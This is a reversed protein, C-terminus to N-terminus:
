GHSPQGDSPQRGARWLVTVLSARGVDSRYLILGWSALRNLSRSKTTQSIGLKAAAQNSLKVVRSFKARNLLELAVKWDAATAPRTNLVTRWMEPFKVYRNM